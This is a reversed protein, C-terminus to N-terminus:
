PILASFEAASMGAPAVRALLRERFRVQQEPDLARNASAILEALGARYTRADRLNPDRELAAAVEAATPQASSGRAAVQVAQEFAAKIEPARDEGQVIGSEPDIEPDPRFLARYPPISQEVAPDVTELATDPTTANPGASVPPLAGQERASKAGRSRADLYFLLEDAWLPRDLRLEALRATDARPRVISAPRAFHPVQTAYDFLAPGTVNPIDGAILQDYTLAVPRSSIQRLAANAGAVDGRLQTRDPAAFTALGGVSGPANAFYIQNAIVSTGGRGQIVPANLDISLAATDALVIANSADVDLDGAVILQQGNAFEVNGSTAALQLDGDRFVSPRASPPDDASGFSLSGASISQTDDTSTFLVRASEVALAGPGAVDSGVVLDGGTRIATNGAIQILGTSAATVGSLTLDHDLDYEGQLFVAGPDPVAANPPDGEGYLRVDGDAGALGAIRLEGGRSLSTQAARRASIAYDGQGGALVGRGQLTVDGHALVDGDVSWTAPPPTTTSSSSIARADVLLDGDAVAIAYDRGGIEQAGRVTIAPGTGEAASGRLVLGAPSSGPVPNGSADFTGKVLGTGNESGIVLQGRQSEITQPGTGTLQIADADLTLKDGTNKSVTSGGLSLTEGAGVRLTQDGSGSFTANGAIAAGGAVDLLSSRSSLGGAGVTLDGGISANGTVSGGTGSSSGISLSHVDLGGSVRVAFPETSVSPVNAALTLRTGPAVDAPGDLEIAGDHSILAVTRNEGGMPPLPSGEGGISFDQEITLSGPAADGVENQLTLGTLVVNGDTAGANGDTAALRLTDARIESVGGAALDLNGSRVELDIRGASLDGGFSLGSEALVALWTEGLERDAARSVGGAVVVQDGVIQNANTSSGLLISGLVSVDGAAGRVAPANPDNSSGAGGRAELNGTMTVTDADLTIAAASGGVLTTTASGSAIASANGGGSDVTGIAITQGTVSVAGGTYGDEPATSSVLGNGGRTRISAIEVASGDGSASITVAGGVEGVAGSADIAGTEVREVGTITLADGMRGTTVAQVDVVQGGLSVAGANTKTIAGLATLSGAGASVSQSRPANPDSATGVGDLSLLSRFIVDGSSAVDGSLTTAGLVDLGAVALSGNVDVGTDGELVLTTGNVLSTDDIQLRAGNSRLTYHMGAISGGFRDLGPLPTNPDGGISADQEFSFEDPRTDSGAASFRAGDDLRIRASNHTGNQSGAVLEIANAALRADIELDGSGDTGSHLRIRGDPATADIRQNVSLGAATEVELSALSLPDAGLDVGTRGRLELRTGALLEAAGDGLTVAGDTSQLGYEMGAIGGPGFVELEPLAASDLARDQILEVRTPAAGADAQSRLSAGTEFLLRADGGSSATGNGAVLTITDAQLASRLTVDGEGGIAGALRVSEATVGFDVDLADTTSLDLSSLAFDSATGTADPAAFSQSVVVLDTGTVAARGAGDLSVANKTRLELALISDAVTIGTLRSAAAGDISADQALVLTAPKEAATETAPIAFLDFGIGDGVGIQATSGTATSPDSAALEVRNASVSVPAASSVTGGAAGSFSFRVTTEADVDGGLVVAGGTSAVSLSRLEAGSRLNLDGTADLTLAVSRRTAPDSDPVIGGRIEGGAAGLDLDSGALTLTDAGLEITDATIRVGRDRARNANGTSGAKASVSGGLEVTDAELAITGAEAADGGGTSISGVSLRSDSGTSRVNVAGGDRNPQGGSGAGGTTLIQGLSIDGSAAIDVDGGPNQSAGRTDILRTTVTQTQQSGGADTFGIKVDGRTTISGGSAVEPTNPDRDHDVTTGLEVERAEIRLAGGASTTVNGDVDLAGQHASVLTEPPPDGTEVPKTVLELNGSVAIDGATAVLDGASRASGTVALSAVQLADTGQIDALTGTLALASDAVVAKDDIVVNGGTSRLAIERTAGPAAEGIDLAALRSSALTAGQELAIANPGVAADAQSRFAVDDSIRLASGSSTARLSLEDARVTVTEGATASRLEGPSAGRFSIDVQEGSVEQALALDGRNGAALAIERARIASNSFIATGYLDGAGVQVTGGGGTSADLTGTNTVGIANPDFVAGAAGEVCLLLGRGGDAASQRGIIVDNGAAIVIWGDEAFVQGSNVVQEGVLSVARAVIDAANNVEGVVGTYHDQVTGDSRRAFDQDSLHGGAAHIGNANVTAGQSFYVGAPNVIYIHGNGTLSGEIRTPLANLIRNLVRADAGPQIFQVAEGVAINLSTYQIVSGDPATIQWSGAGVEAITAGGVVPDFGEPGALAPTAAPGVAIAAVLVAVLVDRAALAIAFRARRM